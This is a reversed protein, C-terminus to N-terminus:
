VHPGTGGIISSQIFTPLQQIKLVLVVQMTTVASMDKEKEKKQRKLVAHTNSTKCKVSASGTCSHVNSFGM